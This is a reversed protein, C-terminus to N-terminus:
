ISYKGKRTSKKKQHKFFRVSIFINKNLKNLRTPKGKTLKGKPSVSPRGGSAKGEGGGHPHDVPNMAVGRVSPRKGLWRSAGANGLKKKEHLGNSVVGLSAKCSLNIFRQEGSRLQIRAHTETKEIIHAFNGASRVIQGGKKPKLEINHILRGVPINKLLTSYGVKLQDLSDGSKLIDGKQISDPAIINHYKGNENICHAILSTRYPDYSLFLVESQNNIRKFDIIRYLKKHGGGRRRVTIKGQNNRGGNKVIRKQLSRKKFKLLNTYKLTVRQRLSPTTPKTKILFM